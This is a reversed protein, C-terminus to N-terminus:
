IMSMAFVEQKAEDGYIEIPKNKLCNVIFNSVVRGDNEAM